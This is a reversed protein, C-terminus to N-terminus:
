GVGRDHRHFPIGPFGKIVDSVERCPAHSYIISVQRCENMPDFAAFASVPRSLVQLRSQLGVVPHTHRILPWPEQFVICSQQSKEKNPCMMYTDANERSTVRPIFTSWAVPSAMKSLSPSSNIFGQRHTYSRKFRKNVVKTLQRTKRTTTNPRPSLSPPPEMWGEGM